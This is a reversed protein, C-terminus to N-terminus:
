SAAVSNLLVQEQQNLPKPDALGAYSSIIRVAKQRTAQHQGRAKDQAGARRHGPVNIGAPLSAKLVDGWSALYYDAIWKTLRLIESTIIPESDLLQAIDKVADENIDLEAPLSEHLAVAYGTLARKGFPVLLRDGTQIARRMSFPILYTSTQRLPLPLAVEVFGAAPRSNVTLDSM